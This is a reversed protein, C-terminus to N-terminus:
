RLKYNSTKLYNLFKKFLEEISPQTEIEIEPIDGDNWKVIKSPEQNGKKVIDSYLRKEIELNKKNEFPHLKKEVKNKLPLNFKPKKLDNKGKLEILYNDTLETVTIKKNDNKIENVYLLFPQGLDKGRSLNDVCKGLISNDITFKDCTVNIGQLLQLVDVVISNDYKTKKKSLLSFVTDNDTCIHLKKYNLSKSLILGQKLAIFESKITSTKDKYGKSKYFIKRNKKEKTIKEFLVGYGNECGDIYLNVRDDISIVEYKFDKFSWSDNLKEILKQKEKDSYLINDVITKDFKTSNKCIEKVKELISLKTKKFYYNFLSYFSNLQGKTIQNKSCIFNIQRIVKNKIEDPLKVKKNTLNIDWRLFKIQNHLYTKNRNLQLGNKTLIECVIRFKEMCEEKTKGFTVGDDLYNFTTDCDNIIRKIFNDFLFCSNPHGQPISKFRYYQNDVRFCFYDQEEKKLPLNWYGNKIDWKVCWRYNNKDVETLIDEIRTYSPRLVKTLGRIKNIIGMNVVLRPEDGVNNNDDWKPVFECNFSMEPTETKEIFKEDLLKKLVTPIKDKVSPYKELKRYFCKNSIKLDLNEKLSQLNTYLSQEPINKSNKKYNLENFNLIDDIDGTKTDLQETLVNMKSVELQPITTPENLKESENFKYLCSLCYFKEIKRVKIFKGENITFFSYCSLCQYKETERCSEILEKILKEFSQLITINTIHCLSEKLRLVDDIESM